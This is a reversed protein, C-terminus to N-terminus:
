IRRVEDLKRSKLDTGKAQDPLFFERNPDYAAIKRESLVATFACTLVDGTLLLQWFM